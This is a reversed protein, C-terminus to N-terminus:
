FFFFFFFFFFLFFNFFFFFFFFFNLSVLNKYKCSWMFKSSSFECQVESNKKTDTMESYLHNLYKPPADKGCQAEDEHNGMIGMFQFKRDAIMTDFYLDPKCEYDYDGLHLLADFTTLKM